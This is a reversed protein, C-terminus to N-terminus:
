RNNSNNRRANRISTKISSILNNSMKFNKFGNKILNRVSKEINYQELCYNCSQILDIVEQQRTPELEGDLLQELKSIIEECEEETYPSDPRRLGYAKFSNGEPSDTHNYSFMPNIWKMALHYQM